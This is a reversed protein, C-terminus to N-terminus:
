QERGLRQEVTMLARCLKSVGNWNGAEAAIAVAGYFPRYEPAPHYRAWVKAWACLRDRVTVPADEDEKFVELVEGIVDLDHSFNLWNWRADESVSPPLIEMKFLEQALWARDEMKAMATM